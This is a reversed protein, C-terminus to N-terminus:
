FNTMRRMTTDPYTKDVRKFKKKPSPADNSGAQNDSNPDPPMLPTAFDDETSSDKFDSATSQIHRVNVAHPVIKVKQPRKPREDGRLIADEHAYYRANLLDNDYENGFNKMFNEVGGYKNNVLEQSLEHLPKEKYLPDNLKLLKLEAASIAFLSCVQQIM